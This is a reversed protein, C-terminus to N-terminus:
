LKLSQIKEVIRVQEDLPPLAILLEKLTNVSVGGIIGTKNRQFVEFFTPSQLYYYIYNAIKAYPAFCCLKNGFCVDKKLIAIKRGASGGEICMLVSDSPAIRFDHIYREPIAVGNAYNIHHDFGVDKTGIYEKGEVKSYRSRKETESISNGTYLNTINALRVWQWAGPIEFPIEDSIDLVKDGVKEYYKNDEGKFISTDVLDKKKLKGKQLLKHKENKIRELLESVPRETQDQEVLRGQIADQLISKKLREHIGKNLTDLRQQVENYREIEHLLVYYKEVIRKQQLICPLPLLFNYIDVMSINDNTSNKRDNVVAMVHPAKLVLNIYESTIWQNRIIAVRQNLLMEEPLYTVFLSKGVTGGTMAMLIDNKRVQYNDSITPGSYRVLRSNIFGKESIDSIRIVRPGKNGKLTQSPFAYGGIIDAVYGLRVWEWGQPVKFPIEDDICVVRGDPFKEYHSNCGCAPM